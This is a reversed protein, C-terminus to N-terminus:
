LLIGSSVHAFFKLAFTRIMCILLFTDYRAKLERQLEGLDRPDKEEGYKTETFPVDSSRGKENMAKQSEVNQVGEM